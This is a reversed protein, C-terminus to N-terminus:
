NSRCRLSACACNPGTPLDTSHAGAMRSRPAHSTSEDQRATKGAGPSNPLAMLEDLDEEPVAFTLAAPSVKDGVKDSVAKERLPAFACLASEQSRVGAEQTEIAMIM